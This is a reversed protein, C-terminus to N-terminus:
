TQPLRCPSACHMGPPYANFALASALVSIVDLESGQSALFLNNAHDLLDRPIPNRLRSARYINFSRGPNLSFDHIAQPLLTRLHESSFALGKLERVAFLDEAHLRLTTMDLTALLQVSEFAKRYHSSTSSSSTPRLPNSTRLTERVTARLRCILTRQTEEVEDCVILVRPPAELPNAM